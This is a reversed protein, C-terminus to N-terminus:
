QIGAAIHSYDQRRQYTFLTAGIALLSLVWAMAEFGLVEFRYLLGLLGSLLLGGIITVSDAFSMLAGRFSKGVMRYIIATVIINLETCLEAVVRTFTVVYINESAIGNIFFLVTYTATIILLANWAGLYRLLVRFFLLVMLLISVAAISEYFGYFAILDSESPYTHAAVINFQYDLLYYFGYAFLPILIIRIWQPSTGMFHIFSTLSAPAMREETSNLINWQCRAIVTLIIAAGAMSLACILYFMEPSIVAALRNMLQSGVFMGTTYGVSLYGFLRRSQHGSFLNAAVIWVVVEVAEMILKTSLILYSSIVAASLPLSDASWALLANGILLGSSALFLWFTFTLSAFRTMGYTIGVAVALFGFVNMGYIFPLSEAGVAVNFLAASVNPSM